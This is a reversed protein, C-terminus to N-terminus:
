SPPTARARQHLLDRIDAAFREGWTAPPAAQWTMGERQTPHEVTLRYSHLALNRGDLERRAGYRVDGLIPHGLHALQVRAQHSRGTHLRVELLSLREDHAVAQWQLEARRAGERDPDVVRVTRGEKLLYDECRGWGECRGEVIALYRKEPFREKFQRTLRRAAKSTRALVMVGSAPRDLRHVLGLYVAGPKEYTRRLYAKVETVLSPDGTADGQSLLGPPKDVVVLHNDIYLLNFTIEM